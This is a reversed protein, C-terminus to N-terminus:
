SPLPSRVAPTCSAELAMHAMGVFRRAEPERPQRHPTIKTEGASASCPAFATPDAGSRFVPPPHRTGGQTAPFGSWPGRTKGSPHCRTWAHSRAKTPVVIRMWGHSRAKTPVVIRMWGHSRAKTPVVIRMWGHSRAKTPVVIRMWGHSRAKTLVVIRMWGHSRAKTLVVIRTWGHSRAKTPVVIRTWGHSRAKTPVVIRMWGHSRAKTLVVIRTWGHSRAKTPVVIRMWGHSRAKTLVVIRTWGHSRAKTPVVIRMWGHSRAKARSRTCLEGDRGNCGVAWCGRRDGEAADDEFLAWPKAQRGVHSARLSGRLRKSRKALLDDGMFVGRRAVRGSRRSERGVGERGQCFGSKM